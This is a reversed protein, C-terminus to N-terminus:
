QKIIKKIIYDDGQNIRVFYIGQSYSSLDIPYKNLGSSVQYVNNFMLEGVINTVIVGVEVKEKTEVVLNILGNTPNPMIDYSLNSSNINKVSTFIDEPLIYVGVSDVYFNLSDLVGDGPNVTFTYISDNPLGPIDARVIFTANNDLGTFEYYGNVDTTTSSIAGGPSQEVTIDIDGIPDGPAKKNTPDFGYYEYVYGNCTWSGSQALGEIVDINYAMLNGGCMLSIVTASDWQHVENPMGYYTNIYSPHAISNPEAKVVYDGEPLSNFSYYGNSSTSITDYRLYEGPLPDYKYLTVLVSDMGTGIIDYVYGDVILECKCDVNTFGSDNVTNIVSLTTPTVNVDFISDMINSYVTATLDLVLPLTIAEENPCYTKLSKDIKYIMTGEGTSLNGLAIAGGDQTPIMDYLFSANGFTEVLSKSDIINGTNDLKLIGTGSWDGYTDYVVTMHGDIILSNRPYADASENHLSYGKIWNVAGTSLDLNAVGTGNYYVLNNYYEFVVLVENGIVQISNVNFSNENDAISDFLLASNWILVGTEDLKGINLFNDYMDPTTLKFGGFRFNAANGAVLIEGNNLSKAATFSYDISDKNTYFKSWDVNGAGDLKYIYGFETPPDGKGQGIMDNAKGYLLAGGNNTKEAKQSSYDFGTYADAEYVYNWDVNGNDSISYVFPIAGMDVAGFSTTNVIVNGANETYYIWDNAGYNFPEVFTYITDFLLNGNYDLRSYYHQMEYTDNDNRSGMVYHQEDSMEAVSRFVMPGYANPIRLSDIFTIHKVQSFAIIQSFIIAVFLFNKKM